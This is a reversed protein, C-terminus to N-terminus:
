LKAGRRSRGYKSVSGEIKSLFKLERDGKHIARRPKLVHSHSNSEVSGEEVRDQNPSPPQSLAASADAAGPMRSEVEESTGPYRRLNRLHAVVEPAGPDSEPVLAFTQNGVRRKVVFPEDQVIPSLKTKRRKTLLVRDEVNLDYRRKKSERLRKQVTRFSQERRDLWIERFVSLQYARKESRLAAESAVAGQFIPDAPIFKPRLEEWRQRASDRVDLLGEVPVSAQWGYILEYASPRSGGTTSANLRNQAIAVM